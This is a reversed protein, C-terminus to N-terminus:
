SGVDLQDGISLNYIKAQGAKMEFVSNARWIPWVIKWPKVNYVISKIKKNKDVFVCDINFSMFFTHISNCHHIWLVEDPGLEKKPILGKMRDAMKHAVNLQNTLVKEKFILSAM